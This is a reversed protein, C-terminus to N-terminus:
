FQEFHYIIDRAADDLEQDLADDSWDVYLFSALEKEDLTIFGSDDLAKARKAIEGWTNM